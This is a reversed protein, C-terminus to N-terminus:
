KRILLSSTADHISPHAFMYTGDERKLYTGILHNAALICDYGAYDDDDLEKETVKGNRKLIAKFLRRKAKDQLIKKITQNLFDVPKTFYEEASINNDHHYAAIFLKCIHPFGYPCNTQCIAKVKEHDFEMRRLEPVANWMLIKEDVDRGSSIHFTNEDDKMFTRLRGLDDSASQLIYDRGVFLVTIKKRSEETNGKSFSIPDLFSRLVQRWRSWEVVSFELDGLIDDLMILPRSYTMTVDSFEFPSEVQFVQRGKNYQDKLTMYAVTSKGEGPPGIITVWPAGNDLTERVKKFVATEVTNETWSRIRAETRKRIKQVLTLPTAEDKQGPDAKGINQTGGVNLNKAKPVVVQQEMKIFNYQVTGKATENSVAAPWQFQLQQQHGAMVHGITSPLCQGGAAMVRDINAQFHHKDAKMFKDISTPVSQTAMVGEGETTMTKNTASAIVDSACPQPTINACRLIQQLLMDKERDVERYDKHHVTDVLVMTADNQSYYCDEEVEEESFGDERCTDESYEGDFQVDNQHGVEDNDDRSDVQVAEVNRNPEEEGRDQTWVDEVEGEDATVYEDDDDDDDDDGNDCDDCDDEDDAKQKENFGDDDEEEDDSDNDGHDDTQAM